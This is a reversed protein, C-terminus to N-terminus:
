CKPSYLTRGTVVDFWYASQIAFIMTVSDGARYHLHSVQRGIWSGRQDGAIVWQGSTTCERDLVPLFLRVDEDSAPRGADCRVDKAAIGMVIHVKGDAANFNECKFLSERLGDLITADIPWRGFASDFYTDLDDRVFTGPLVNLGGEWQHVWAAIFRYAPARRVVDPTDLQVLGGAQMVAVRDGMALAEEPDHTVVITTMGLQKTLTRVERRLSTRQPADLHGFPEDLLLISPQRLLCRALAVRQQQGGSLHAVPRDLEVDLRFTALINKAHPTVAYRQGLLGSAWALSQRVTQGPILSPRQFLMAINRQHCPIDDLLRGAFFISGTTPTELGAILRLLTTKGCGSPGVLALCEGRDIQLSMDAVAPVQSGFRKSLNELRLATRPM